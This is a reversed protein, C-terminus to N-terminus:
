RSATPKATKEGEVVVRSFDAIGALMTNIARLLGLRNQRLKKEEAMVLVKEFFTNLVPQVKFIIGQARGFDGKAIIPAVNTQIISFTSYLEREEKEIFLDPNVKGSPQDKLINNIRKAMLIFPEFLPSSKLSDLAQVRLYVDLIQDLGPGLAANVLDYRFGQKEFIFRLRGEFFELCYRKVDERKVSLKDGYSALVKDLLLPFSLRLKKDLIIKAVGHANRRLGFPDSSGSVEIGVGLVGVISDLKDAVALVAGSLSTPVDEDLGAPQYHEYIAQYVAAPYGEQRAYLGGMKGQLGSFERVMETLLDAKCLGAAEVTDKKVKAAEMRDCIYASVKKLRQAKEEYSGLKEQFVVNKLGAARDALPIKRDQEWFFRADELRAKLVREHGSRILGKADKAADAVGLFYPLQKKDGVVTFLKQGERMATSLVEIPLALYSEPFAGLVVLPHEVNFTLEDLLGPDPYVKAKLPAVADESQRIIMRRRDEPDIIVNAERLMDKYEACSRVRITAAELFRHGVTTDGAALGAFTVSLPAGDFLCLLSHIPRSFRFPSTGWRMTKPFNLSGLVHPIVDRLIEPAPTGKSKRKFGIYEGKATRVVELAAEDIGQSRAFGKAAQTFSGDSAMAVTKPPGTVIDESDPQGPAFDGTVILRRPTGFTGLEAVAIRAAGLEALFRERLQELASRVHAAPMEETLLEMLFEM